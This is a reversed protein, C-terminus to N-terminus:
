NTIVAKNQRHPQEESQEIGLLYTMICAASFTAIAGNTVSTLIISIAAAGMGKIANGLFAAILNVAFSVSFISIALVLFLGVTRWFYKKIFTFGQSLSDRVGGDKIVSLYQSILIPMAVIAVGVLTFLLVIGGIINFFVNDGGGFAVFIGTLFAGIIWLVITILGGILNLGFLRLFYKSCNGIFEGMNLQGTKLVSMVSSFLGGQIFFWTLLMLIFLIVMPVVAEAIKEPTPNLGIVMLMAFASVFNFICVVVMPLLIDKVSAGGRKIVELVKM